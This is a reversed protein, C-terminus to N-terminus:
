LMMKREWYITGRFLFQKGVGWFQLYLEMIMKEEPTLLLKIYSAKFPCFKEEYGDCIKYKNFCKM